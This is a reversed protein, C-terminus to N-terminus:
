PPGSRATALHTVAADEPDVGDPVRWGCACGTLVLIAQGGIERRTWSMEHVTPSASRSTPAANAFELFSRLATDRLERDKYENKTTHGNTLLFTLFTRVETRPGRAQEEDQACAYTVQDANVAYNAGTHTWFRAM